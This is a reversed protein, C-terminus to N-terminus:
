VHARGIQCASVIYDPSHKRLQELREKGIENSFEPNSLQYGGGMGCCRSEEGHLYAEKVEVGPLQKFFERADSSNQTIRAMYCPDHFTIVKNLPQSPKLKGEKLQELFYVVSHLVKPKLSFGYEPYATNLMEACAPCDSIVLGAMTSEILAKNKAALGKMVTRYGVKNVPSGCCVSRFLM